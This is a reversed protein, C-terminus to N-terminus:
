AILHPVVLLLSLSICLNTAWILVFSSKLVSAAAKETPQPHHVVNVGGNSGKGRQAKETVFTHDKAELNEAGYGETNLDINGSCHTGAHICWVMLSGVFVSICFSLFLFEGKEEQAVLLHKSVKSDKSELTRFEDLSSSYWVLQFFFLIFFWLHSGKRMKMKM